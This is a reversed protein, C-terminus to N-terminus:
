ASRAFDIFKAAEGGAIGIRGDSRLIGMRLLWQEFEPAPRLGTLAEGLLTETAGDGYMEATDILTMGLDVGVRLAAIEQKRLRADEGM